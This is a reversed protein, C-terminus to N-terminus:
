AAEKHATAVTNAPNHKDTLKSQSNRRQLFKITEILDDALKSNPDYRDGNGIINAGRLVFLYEFRKELTEPRVSRFTEACAKRLGATAESVIKRTEESLSTIDTVFDWLMAAEKHAEGPTAKDPFLLKAIRMDKKSLKMVADCATGSYFDDSSVMRGHRITEGYVVERLKTLEVLREAAVEALNRVGLKKLKEEQGKTTILVTNPYKEGIQKKLHGSFPLRPREDRQWTMLYFAPESCKPEVYSYESQDAVTLYKDETKVRKPMAKRNQKAEEYDFVELEIKFHACLDRLAKLNKETWQRLVVGAIYNQLRYSFRHSIGSMTPRLDRLNRAVCLVPHVNGEQSFEGIKRTKPGSTQHRHGHADFLMLDKLLDMKSAIRMMPMATRRFNHESAMEHRKVARRFFRRNDRFIKAAASYKLRKTEISLHNRTDTRIAHYAIMDPTSLVGPTIREEGLYDDVGQVGKKKVWENIYRKAAVPLALEIQKIAKSLLRKVTQTTLESYSLAERSPTVGVSNPPAVLLLATNDGILRVAKNALDSIESDTTSVPYIVTGYLLYVRGEPLHVYPIACYETERAVTYDYREIPMGNLNALMGGQRAVLRIHGEFEYRDKKNHLPITVTIGTETTPVRVMPRMDPKGDTAAGGRSIAYVTKFGAHRNIVNFHDTVAFPSKSGLGFGGTQNEDKVKTSKGYICYIPRMLADPIGPGFDRIEIETDTVTIEVPVDTKGVMIHADWANCITERMAARKKDRYINDSLISYFEADDALGFAEPKGGGIIAHTDLQAIQSVEM